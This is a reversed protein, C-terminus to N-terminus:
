VKNKSRHRSIKHFALADLIQDTTTGAEKAINEVSLNHQIYKQYLWGYSQWMRIM